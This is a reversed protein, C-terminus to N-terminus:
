AESDINLPQSAGIDFVDFSGMSWWYFLGPECGHLETLNEWEATTCSRFNDSKNLNEAEEYNVQFLSTLQTSSVRGPELDKHNRM